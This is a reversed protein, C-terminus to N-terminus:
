TYRDLTLTYQVVVSPVEPPFQEAILQVNNEDRDEMKWRGNVM